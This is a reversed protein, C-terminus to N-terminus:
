KGKQVLGKESCGRQQVVRTKRSDTNATGVQVERHEATGTAAVLKIREQRMYM